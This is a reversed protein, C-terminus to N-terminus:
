PAGGNEMRLCCFFVCLCETCLLAWAPPYVYLVQPAELPRCLTKDDEAQKGPFRGKNPGACAIPDWSLPADSCSSEPPPPLSPCSAAWLVSMPGAHAM